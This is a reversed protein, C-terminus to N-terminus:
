IKGYNMEGKYDKDFIPHPIRELNKEDITITITSGDDFIVDYSKESIYFNRVCGIKGNRHKQNIIKVNAWREFKM